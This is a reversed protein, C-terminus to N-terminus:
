FKKTRIYLIFDLTLLIYNYYLLYMFYTYQLILM